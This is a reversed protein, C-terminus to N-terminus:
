STFRLNLQMEMQESELVGRLDSWKWQSGNPGFSASNERHLANAYCETFSILDADSTM